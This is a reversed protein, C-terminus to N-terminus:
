SYATGNKETGVAGDGIGHGRGQGTQTFVCPLVAYFCKQNVGSFPQGVAFHVGMGLGIPQNTTDNQIWIASPDIGEVRGHRRFCKNKGTLDLICINQILSADIIQIPADSISLFLCSGMVESFCDLSTHIAVPFQNYARWRDATGDLPSQDEEGSM